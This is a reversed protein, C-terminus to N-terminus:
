LTVTTTTDFTSWQIGDTSYVINIPDPSSEKILSITSGDEEATFCLYDPIGMKVMMGDIFLTNVSKGNISFTKFNAM